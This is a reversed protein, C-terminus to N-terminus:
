HVQTEPWSDWVMSLATMRREDITSLVAAVFTLVPSSTGPQDCPQDLDSIPYVRSSEPLNGPLLRRNVFSVELVRPCSSDPILPAYDTAM